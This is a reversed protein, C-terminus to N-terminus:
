DHDSPKFFVYDNNAVDVHCEFCGESDLKQKNGDYADFRWGSTEESPENGEETTSMMVKSMVALWLVHGVEVNGDVLEAHSFELVIRDGPDYIHNGEDNKNSSYPNVKYLYGHRLGFFPSSEDLVVGSVPITTWTRYGYPYGKAAKQMESESAHLPKISGIAFSVVFFAFVFLKLGLWKRLKM